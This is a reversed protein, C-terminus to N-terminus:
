EAIEKLAKEAIQGCVGYTGDIRRIKQLANELHIKDSELMQIPAISIGSYNLVDRVHTWYETDGM